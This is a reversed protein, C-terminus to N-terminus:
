RKAGKKTPPKQKAQVKTEDSDHKPEGVSKGEVEVVRWKKRKSIPKTEEIVVRQGFSADGEFHALYSKTAKLRKRYIPHHFVRVVEVRVTKDSSVSKITGALRKRPM